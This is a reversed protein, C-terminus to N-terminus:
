LTDVFDQTLKFPKNINITKPSQSCGTNIVLLFLIDAWWRGFLIKPIQLFHVSFPFMIFDLLFLYKQFIELMETYSFNKGDYYGICSNCRALPYAKANLDILPM